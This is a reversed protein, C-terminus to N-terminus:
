VREVVVGYEFSKELFEAIVVEADKSGAVLGMHMGYLVLCFGVPTIKRIEFTAHRLCIKEELLRCIESASGKFTGLFRMMVELGGANM